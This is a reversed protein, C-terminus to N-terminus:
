GARKKRREKRSMKPEERAIPSERQTADPDPPRKLSGPLPTGVPAPETLLHTEPPAESPLAPLRIIFTAGEGPRSVVGISGGHNKIIRQCIALGLGTGKQKTTYFPIFISQQQDHPIGPGSDSVHLEIVDAGRFDGFREPKVTKIAIRGSAEGIAQVANQVLNILVQKLQEADGNSKQLGDTLELKVEIRPPLDNHILKVTRTV